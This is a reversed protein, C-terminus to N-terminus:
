VTLLSPLHRGMWLRFLSSLRLRRTLWPFLLLSGAISMKLTNGPAAISSILVSLKVEDPFAVSQFHLCGKSQPPPTHFHRSSPCVLLKGFVWWGLIGLERETKGCIKRRLSWCYEWCHHSHDALKTKLPKPPNPTTTTTTKYGLASNRWWIDCFEVQTISHSGLPWKMSRIECCISHNGQQRDCNTVM